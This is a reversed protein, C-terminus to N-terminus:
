NIDVGNEIAYKIMNTPMGLTSLISYVSNKSLRNNILVMKVNNKNCLKINQIVKGIYDAMDFEKRKLLDSFDIGIKINNERTIKCLIHNLGSDRQKLKNKRSFSEFGYILEIKGSELIKRNFDDDKACIVVKKGQKFLSEIIKRAENVNSVDIKILNIM